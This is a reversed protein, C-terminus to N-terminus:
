VNSIKVSVLLVFIYLYFFPYVRQCSLLVDCENERIFKFDIVESVKGDVLNAILLLTM